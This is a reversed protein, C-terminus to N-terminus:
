TTEGRGGEKGIRRLWRRIASLKLISRRGCALLEEGLTDGGEGSGAMLLNHYHLFLAPDPSAPDPRPLNMALASVEDFDYFHVPLVAARRVLPALDVMRGELDGLLAPDLRLMEGMFDFARCTMRGYHYIPTGSHYGHRLLDLLGLFAASAEDSNRALVADVRDPAASGPSEIGSCFLFPSGLDLPDCELHLFLTEGGDGPLEVPSLKRVRGDILVEAQRRAREMGDTPAGARRLREPDAAALDQVSEIGYRRLVRAGTRTLGYTFSADQRKQLEPLCTSRWRCRLCETGFFPSSKRDGDAVATVQEVVDLLVTRISGLDFIERTRDGLIVFGRDPRRDQIRELLLGAYAVQLAADSRAHLASKADGPIYHYDGLASRGDVREMFDPQALRRGDLLVGQYIGAAGNRMLSLTDEAAKEWEGSQVTIEPYRLEAAISEEFLRGHQFLLSTQEDPTTRESRDLRADLAIRHACTVFDYLHRALVPPRQRPAKEM